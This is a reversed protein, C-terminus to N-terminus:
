ESGRKRGEAPSRGYMACSGAQVVGQILNEM